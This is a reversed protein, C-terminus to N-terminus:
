GHYGYAWGANISVLFIVAFLGALLMRKRIKKM